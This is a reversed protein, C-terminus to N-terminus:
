SSWEILLIVAEQTFINRTFLRVGHSVQKRIEGIIENIEYHIYEAVYQNYKCHTVTSANRQINLQVVKLGNAGCHMRIIM